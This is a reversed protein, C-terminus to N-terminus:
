QTQVDNWNAKVEACAAKDYTPDHCVAGIPVVKVLNGNV